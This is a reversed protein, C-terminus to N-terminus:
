SLAVDFYGVTAGDAGGDVMAAAVGTHAGTQWVEVLKKGPDAGPLALRKAKQERALNDVRKVISAWPVGKGVEFYRADSVTARGGSTDRVLAELAARRDAAPAEIAKSPEPAPLAALNLSQAMGFLASLSVMLNSM